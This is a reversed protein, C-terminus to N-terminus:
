SRGGAMPHVNPVPRFMPDDGLFERLATPHRNTPRYGSLARRFQLSHGVSRDQNSFDAHGVKGRGLKRISFFRM